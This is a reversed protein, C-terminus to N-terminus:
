RSKRVHSGLHRIASRCCPSKDHATVKQGLDLQSRSLCRRRWVASYLNDLDRASPGWERLLLNRLGLMKAAYNLCQAESAVAFFTGALQDELRAAQEALEAARVHQGMDRYLLALNVLSGASYPHQEGFVKKNIALAQKNLLEAKGYEGM